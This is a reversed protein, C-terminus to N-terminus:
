FDKKKGNGPSVAAKIDLGMKMSMKGGLEPAEAIMESTLYLDLASKLARGTAPLFHTEGSGKYVMKSIKLSIEGGVGNMKGSCEIDKFEVDVKTSFVAVRTAGSGEIRELKYKLPVKISKGALKMEGLSTLENEHIWEDGVKVPRDPLVFPFLNGSNAVGQLLKPLPKDKSAEKMLGRADM